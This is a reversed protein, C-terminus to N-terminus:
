KGLDIQRRGRKLPTLSVTRRSPYPGNGSFSLRSVGSSSWNLDSVLVKSDERDAIRIFLKSERGDVMDFSAQGELVGGWSYMETPAQCERKWLTVNTSHVLTKTGDTIEAKVREVSGKLFSWPSKEKEIKKKWQKGVEKRLLRLFDRVSPHLRKELLSDIQELAEDDGLSRLAKALCFARETVSEQEMLHVLEQLYAQGLERDRRELIADDALERIEPLRHNLLNLGRVFDDSYVDSPLWRIAEAVRLLSQRDGEAQMAAIFSGFDLADMKAFARYATRRVHKSPDGCLKQLAQRILSNEGRSEYSGANAVSHAVQIRAPELWGQWQDGCAIEMFEDPALHSCTNIAHTDAMFHSQMKITFDRVAIRIKQSLENDNLRLARLIPGVTMSTASGLALLVLEEVANGHQEYHAAIHASDWSSLPEAILRRELDKLNILDPLDGESSIPIQGRYILTQIARNRLEGESSRAFEVLWDLQKRSATVEDFRLASITEAKTYPSMHVSMTWSWLHSSLAERFHNREALECCAVIAAERNHEELGDNATEVLKDLVGKKGSRHLEEAVDAIAEVFSLLVKGDHLYQFMLLSNFVGYSPSVRALRLLGDNRFFEENDSLETSRKASLQRCFQKSLPLPGSAALQSAISQLAYANTEGLVARDIFEADFTDAAVMQLLEVCGTKIKLAPTVFTGDIKTDEAAGRMLSEVLRQSPPECFAELHEPKYLDDLRSKAITVRIEDTGVAESIEELYAIVPLRSSCAFAFSSNMRVTRAHKQLKMWVMDHDLDTPGCRNISTAVASISLDIDMQNELKGAKELFALALDMHGPGCLRSVVYRATSLDNSDRLNQSALQVCEAESLIGTSPKESVGLDILTRLAVWDDRQSSRALNSLFSEVFNNRVGLTSITALVAATARGRLSLCLRLYEDAILQERQGVPLTELVSQLVKRLRHQNILSSTAETSDVCQSKSAETLLGVFSGVPFGDKRERFLAQLVHACRVSWTWDEDSINPFVGSLLRSMLELVAEANGNEELTRLHEDLTTSVEQANLAM